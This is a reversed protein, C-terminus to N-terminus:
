TTYMTLFIMETQKSITNIEVCSQHVTEASRVMPEYIMNTRVLPVGVHRPDLPFENQLM